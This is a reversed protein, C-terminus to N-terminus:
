FMSQCDGLEDMNTAKMACDFEVQTGQEACATMVDPKVEDLVGKIFEAHEGADDMALTKFQM